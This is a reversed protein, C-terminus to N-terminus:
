RNDGFSRSSREFRVHRDIEAGHLFGRKITLTTGDVQKSGEFGPHRLSNTAPEPALASQTAGIELQSNPSYEETKVFFPRFCGKSARFELEMPM